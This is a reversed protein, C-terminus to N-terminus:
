SIFILTSLKDNPLSPIINNPSSPIIDNPTNNTTYHNPSSPIIDNPIETIIKSTEGIFGNAHKHYIFFDIKMDSFKDNQLDIYKDRDQATGAVYLERNKIYGLLINFTSFHNQWQCILKKNNILKYNNFGHFDNFKTTTSPRGKTYNMAVLQGTKILEIGEEATFYYHELTEGKKELVICFM